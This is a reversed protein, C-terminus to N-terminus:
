HPEHLSEVQRFAMQTRRWPSRGSWRHTGAQLRGPCRKVTQGPVILAPRSDVLVQGTQDLILGRRHAIRREQIFNEESKALYSGGRVVQLVYLRVVLVAFFAGILASFVAVRRSSFAPELSSKM